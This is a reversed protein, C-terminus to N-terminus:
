ITHTWIINKYNVKLTKFAEEASEKSRYFGAITLGSGAILQKVSGSASLDNNITDLEPYHKSIIDEFDNHFYNTINSTNKNLINQKLQECINVHKGIKDLEIKSYMWSTSPKSLSPTILIVWLRQLIGLIPNIDDGKGAIECIGGRMFYFVDSGLPNIIRKLQETSITSKWMELLTKITVAADSSGGGLGAKVPIRKKLVIKVGLHSDGIEEKLLQAARYVFNEANSLEGNDCSLTIKDNQSEFFLSDHLDLECNIFRVPYYGTDNKFSLDPFVHLNLNLKAYANKEIM